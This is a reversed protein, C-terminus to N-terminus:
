QKVFRTTAGADNNLRLWYTGNALQLIDVVQNTGDLQGQLLSRGVIDCVQYAIPRGSIRTRVHLDGNAPNPFVTVQEGAVSPTVGLHESDGTYLRVVEADTLARDWFGIDDMKGTVYQNDVPCAGFWLSNSGQYCMLDPSSVSDILTGDVFVKNIHQQHVVVVHHWGNGINAAPNTTAKCRNYLNLTGNSYTYAYGFSHGSGWSTRDGLQFYTDYPLGGNDGTYDLWASVTCNEVNSVSTAPVRIYDSTGNFAYASYSQGFRDTTLLAGNVVGDFGHGSGDNANGTFSWWGVLNNTPVYAPVTQADAAHAASFLGIALVAKQILTM